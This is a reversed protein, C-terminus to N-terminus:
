GPPHAGSPPRVGVKALEARGSIGLKIYVARLHNDVTRVSMALRAAIQRSTLGGAALGAVQGERNTLRPERVRALAPTRVGGCRAALYWARASAARAPIDRGTAVLVDAAQAAAEAAHLPMGIRELERSAASLAAPDGGAAAGAHAAAAEALDGEFAAALDALRAAARRGPVSRPPALRVVDHLALLEFGHAGTARARGAVALAAAAGARRGDRLATVWPEALEAWFGALRTASSAAHRAAALAREAEALDGRLAALYAVEGTAVAHLCTGASAAAAARALRTARALSGGVREAQALCLDLLALDAGPPRDRHGGRRAAPLRARTWAIDGSLLGATHRAALLALGTEALMPPVEPPAGPGDGRATGNGMGNAPRHVADDLATDCLAAAQRCRGLQTLATARAAATMPDAPAAPRPAPAAGLVALARRCEGRMALHYAQQAVFASTLAPDRFRGRAASFAQDAADTRGLGFNLTVLRALLVAALDHEGRPAGGAPGLVRPLVSDLVAHAEDARGRRLLDRALSTAARATLAAPADASPASSEPVAGPEPAVRGPSPPPEYRDAGLFSSIVM